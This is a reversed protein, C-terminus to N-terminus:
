SVMSETRQCIRRLIPAVVRQSVVLALPQDRNKNSGVGRDEIDM